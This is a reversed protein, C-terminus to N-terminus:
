IEPGDDGIEDDAEGWGDTGAEETGTGPTEEEIEDGEGDVISNLIEDEYSM